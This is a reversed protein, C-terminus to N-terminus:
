NTSWGSSRQKSKKRRSTRRKVGPQREATNPMAGGSSGATSTRQTGSRQASGYERRVTGLWCMHRRILDKQLDSIDDPRFVNVASFEPVDAARALDMGIQEAQFADGAM